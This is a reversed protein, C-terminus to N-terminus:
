IKSAPGSEYLEYEGRLMLQDSLKLLREAATEANWLDTVTAYASRGLRDRLSPDTILEWVASYLENENQYVLGNEGHHLLYTAAGIESYAVAACGSNMAENLVAGWGERRDATHLFIDAGEMQTRVADPSMAGLLRVRNELHKENILSELRPYMDGIGIMDLTFDVGDDRLKEAVELALEPHKWDIMRGVWLLSVASKERKAALLRDIDYVKTEPFYGWRYARTIFTGTKAYDAAAYEGASLLHLNKYRGWLMNYKVARLPLTYAKCGNKYIRESYRFTLKGSKLREQLLNEPASGYIVTEANLIHERCRKECLTYTLVYDPHESMGYGLKRREERMESTSIFVFAGGTLRHIADCLLKQHHNFYNSVFVIKEKVGGGTYHTYPRSLDCVATKHHSVRDEHPPDDRWAGYKQTLYEDFREPIRVTLGEFVATAGGGYQESPAYELRGQWGGHSCIFDSGEIPYASILRTLREATRDTRRCAGMIRWFATILKGTIRRKLRFAAQLQTKYFTKKLELIIQSAKSKPYGDLPFIDIYVGHNIPLDIAAEEIFTTDSRRLKSYVAPFAFNSSYNQLFVNDSLCSPAVKIFSEYAERPMAVDIDDDWPVFGGYKVAGLASGRVLFYPLRHKECIDVFLLLLEFEIKQLETM